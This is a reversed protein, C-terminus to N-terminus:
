HSSNLRTSKRDARWILRMKLKDLAWVAKRDTWLVVLLLIVMSCASHEIWLVGLARDLARKTSQGCRGTLMMLSKSSGCHEGRETLRTNPTNAPLERVVSAPARTTWPSPSIHDSAMLCPWLVFLTSQISCQAHEITRKNDNNLGDM